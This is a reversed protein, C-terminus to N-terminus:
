GSTAELQDLAALRRAVRDTDPVRHQAAYRDYAQRWDTRAEAYRGLAAYSEAVHDLTNAEEHVDGLAQYLRLADTYHVVAAAHQGTVHALYGLSDLAAAEGDRHEHRRSVALAQECHVRAEDHNGATAHYWGVSNLATAVLVPQGVERYLRLAERGAALARPANGQRHWAQSLAHQTQAQALPDGAHEATALAAQLHVLADAHRGAEAYVRGLRRQALLLADPDGTREAAELGYQWAHLLHQLDGRRRHYDDMAWAFQWVAPYWGQERAAQQAALLNPQEVGFWALAADTDAALQPSCGPVPPDLVIPPRHPSLLRDGACATHLYYDVVRRLAATCEDSTHDATARGTAYLRVLDHMRYRGPTHEHVLHVTHLTRLVARTDPVPSATLSAAAAPGIDPGPALGLLAFTTASARDLARYSCAFVARIDTTLEGADLADLRTSSERLEATLASLPLHPRTAARAAAIGLALPLGGCLDVLEGVAAQEATVRDAGLHGTLLRTADPQDLTDLVLPVAGQETILATLRQRSTVVVTGTAGGPLLPVVQATERANDLVVLIRRGAVLSRYLASQANVDAPVADAPVGLATLFGHLAVTPTTPDAAPDFGRLNVYLQGDPFRALSRYAWHLALWTKGIGGTGTIVSICGAAPPTADLRELDRARGAFLRPAPPLQRVVPMPAPAQPSPTTTPPGAPALTADSRLIRRYLQQLETGPDTGLDGALRHRLRQYRDLAEAARGSRYLALILQGALREDLPHAAVQPYLDPLLDAHRGRRLQIDNHEATVTLRLEDLSRRIEEFWPSYLGAFAEGRWLQLAQGYTAAAAEDPEARARAVLAHFRQLDVAAPEVAVVYGGSRRVPGAGPVASLAQRLRSLYTHLTSRARQPRDDGWVRATLRDAPVPTNVDVLLAALVSRQRAHGLDVPRGDVDAEVAGLVRFDVDMGGDQM